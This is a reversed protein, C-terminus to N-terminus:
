LRLGSYLRSECIRWLLRCYVSRPRQHAKRIFSPIHGAPQAEKRPNWKRPFQKRRNQTSQEGYNERNRHLCLLYRQLRQNRRGGDNQFIVTWDGERNVTEDLEFRQGLQKRVDLRLDPAPLQFVLIGARQRAIQQATADLTPYHRHGVLAREFGQESM